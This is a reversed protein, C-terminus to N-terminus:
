TLFKKTTVSWFSHARRESQVLKLNHSERRPALLLPPAPPPCMTQKESLCYSALYVLVSSVLSRQKLFKDTAVIDAGKGGNLM